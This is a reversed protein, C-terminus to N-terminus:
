CFLVFSIFHLFNKHRQKMERSQRHTKRDTKKERQRETEFRGVSFLTYFIKTKQRKKM